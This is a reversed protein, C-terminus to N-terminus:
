VDYETIQIKVLGNLANTNIEIKINGEYMEALELAMAKMNDILGKNACITMATMKMM